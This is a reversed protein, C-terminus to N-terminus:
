AYQAEVHREYATEYLDAFGPVMRGIRDALADVVIRQEHTHCEGRQEIMEQALRDLNM